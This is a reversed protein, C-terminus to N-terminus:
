TNLLDQVAAAIEPTADLAKTPRNVLPTQLPLIHGGKELRDLFRTLKKALGPPRFVHVPRPAALAESVMNHSDGTVILHDSAALIQSYPNEGTEGDWLWMDHNQLTEQVTKILDMPTRRSGTILIKANEPLATLRAAFQEILTPTWSVSKSNGGLIIGIVSKDALNFRAQAAAKDLALREPTFPHPATLTTIITEGNATLGDHEPAWILDAMGRGLRRPDKLFAIKTAPTRFRLASLYPLTRRGSAIVLDPYPPAIPSAPNEPKDAKSIPVFPLPLATLRGPKFVREVVEVGELWAVVGRCQQLDGAKGDTLLWVKHTM